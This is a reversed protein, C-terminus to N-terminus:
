PTPEEPADPVVDNTVAPAPKPNQFYDAPLTERKPPAEAKDDSVPPLQKHYDDRWREAAKRWDEGAREWDGGWANAIIGWATELLDDESRM